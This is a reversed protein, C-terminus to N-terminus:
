YWSWVPPNKGVVGAAAGDVETYDPKVKVKAKAVDSHLGAAALLPIDISSPHARSGEATSGGCPGSDGGKRLAVAIGKRHALM